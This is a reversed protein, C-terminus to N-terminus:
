QLNVGTGVTYESGDNKKVNVRVYLVIAGRIWEEMWEAYTPTTCGYQYEGGENKRERKEDNKCERAASLLENKM